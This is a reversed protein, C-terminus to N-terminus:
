QLGATDIDPNNRVFTVLADVYSEFAPPEIDTGALARRTNPAVYRTPHDLYDLTAPEAPLGLRQAIGALPKAAGRPVPVGVVRRDLHAAVTEVFQSVPLPSTDCLQYVENRTESSGSLHAIADIVYDRPVVNLETAGARPSRPWVSLIRPQAMLLRILYYPGDYKETEGTTSDGVVISPRYITADIDDGMREQVAVEAEYKTREYHNNFSQGEQLHEGTFVGDYRGSVYCTSVYHLRDVDIRECFSLVRETGSVNVREALGPAVALDYVAALHYVAEVTSFPAPDSLGLEPATIDGVHIDVADTAEIGAVTGLAAVKSRAAQVYQEQVLCAVPSDGRALLRELLASGLFGPFGTLFVRPETM